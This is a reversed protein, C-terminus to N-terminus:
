GDHEGQTQPLAPAPEEDPSERDPSERAEPVDQSVVDAREVLLDLAKSRIIDGALSSVQGSREIIRRVEKPDRGSVQSLAHIERRM